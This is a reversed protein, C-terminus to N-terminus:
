ESSIFIHFRLSEIHEYVARFGSLWARKKKGRRGLAAHILRGGVASLGYDYGNKKNRVLAVGRAVFGRGQRPTHTNTM